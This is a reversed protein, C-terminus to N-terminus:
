TEKGGIFAYLSKAKNTKYSYAIKTLLPKFIKKKVEETMRETGIYYPVAKFRIRFNDESIYGYQGMDYTGDAEREVVRVDGNCICYYKGHGDLDGCMSSLLEIIHYAQTGLCLEIDYRYMFALAVYMMYVKDGLQSEDTRWKTGREINELQHIADNVSTSPLTLVNPFDEINILSRRKNEELLEMLLKPGGVIKVGSNYAPSLLAVTKPVFKAGTIDVTDGSAKAETLLLNLADYRSSDIYNSHLEKVVTVM